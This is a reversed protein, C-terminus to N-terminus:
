SCQCQSPSERYLTTRACNLSSTGNISAKSTSPDFTFTRGSVVCSVQAQIEPLAAGPLDSQTSQSGHTCRYFEQEIWPGKLVAGAQKKSCSCSQITFTSISSDVPDNICKILLIESHLGPSGLFIGCASLLALLPLQILYPFHKM